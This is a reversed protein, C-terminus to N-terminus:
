HLFSLQEKLIRKLSGNTIPIQFQKSFFSLFKSFKFMLDIDRELNLGVHPHRVKVAVNKGNLKARYVQSVSASAIPVPNFEEFM